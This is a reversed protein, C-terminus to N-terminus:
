TGRSRWLGPSCGGCGAPDGERQLRRGDAGRAPRGRREPRTVGGDYPPTGPGGQGAQTLKGQGVQGKEVRVVPGGPRRRRRETPFSPRGARSIAGGITPPLAWCFPQAGAAATTAGYSIGQTQTWWLPVSATALSEENVEVLWCRGTASQDILLVVMNDLPSVVVEVQHSPNSSTVAGLTYHMEPEQAELESPGSLINFFTADTAFLTKAAVASNVLDSQASRDEVGARTGLFTPVAVAMLIAMILLVVMLEILTFGTEAGEDGVWGGSRQESARRLGTLMRQM